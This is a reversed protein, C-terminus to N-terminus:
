TLMGYWRDTINVHSFILRVTIKVRQLPWSSFKQQQAKGWSINIQCIYFLKKSLKGACIIGRHSTQQVRLWIYIWINNIIDPYLDLKSPKLKTGKKKLISKQDNASTYHCISWIQYKKLNTHIGVTPLIQLCTSNTQVVRLYRGWIVLYNFVLTHPSYTM